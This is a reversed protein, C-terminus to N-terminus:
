FTRIARVGYNNDKNFVDQFDDFTEHIWSQGNNFETSSWYVSFGFNFTGIVERRGILLDLEERSPLFWDTFSNLSYADALAAAIGPTACGALIDITNQQGTGVATGDAGNIPTTFCGWEAAPALDVPSAELGHLGNDTVYFVVGGAPGTQGIAYNNSVRKWVAAGSANDVLIYAEKDSTDIWVTGLPYPINMDDNVTPASNFIM